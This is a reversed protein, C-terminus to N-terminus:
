AARTTTLKKFRQLGLIAAGLATTHEPSAPVNVAIGAKERLAVVM